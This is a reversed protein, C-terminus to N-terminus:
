LHLKRKLHYLFDFFVIPLPEKSESSLDAYQLGNISDFSIFDDVSQIYIGGICFSANVSVLSPCQETVM